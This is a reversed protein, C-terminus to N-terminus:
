GNRRTTGSGAGSRRTAMSSSAARKASTGSAASQVCTGLYTWGPPQHEHLAADNALLWDRFAGGETVAVNYRFAFQLM